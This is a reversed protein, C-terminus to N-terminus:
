KEMGNKMEHKNEEEKKKKEEKKKERRGEEEEEEEEGMKKEKEKKKKKKKKKRRRRRWEVLTSRDTGGCTTVFPRFLRRSASEFFPIWENRWKRVM